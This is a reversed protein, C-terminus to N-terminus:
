TADEKIRRRLAAIQEKAWEPSVVGESALYAVVMADAEVQLRKFRAHVSWGDWKEPWLREGDADTLEIDFRRTGMPTEWTSGTTVRM